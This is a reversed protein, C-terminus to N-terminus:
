QRQYKLGTLRPTAVGRHQILVKFITGMGEPHILRKLKLRAQLKEMESEGADYLDAFENEEGLAMLFREQTTFGTFELGAEKGADMLASFNVHATLDQEGPAHYFNESAVHERYTMLTGRPRDPIYLHEALDGYDITIVFGRALKEAVTRIWQVARLNVEVRQGEELGSAHRALAAAVVPDSVPGLVERLSEGEAAVYVEKLHGGARTVVSVPFSDVLENSFFCGTRPALEELSTLLQVKSELGDKALRAGLRLRQQPGVEIALYELTAFLEPQAAKLWRLFDRAFWGRGPGMEVWTFPAPRGLIEWMEITQRALLRAFISHLDPSTFYDGAVGTRERAQMYYGFEPHYLCLTMYREFTIPGSRRITELLLTKLPTQHVTV